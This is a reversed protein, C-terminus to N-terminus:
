LCRNSLALGPALASLVRLLLKQAGNLPLTLAPSSLVLGSLPMRAETAFSAAFLGGMSHGLLLPASAPTDPQAQWDAM